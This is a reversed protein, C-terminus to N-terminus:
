CNLFNQQWVLVPILLLDQKIHNKHLKPLWYLKPVKDQNEKDKVGFHLATPCGHGEVIMTNLFPQLKYANIDVLERQLTNIYYLRWVVVVNNAAKDAPDLVYNM